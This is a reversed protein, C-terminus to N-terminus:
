RVKPNQPAFNGILDVVRHALGGGQDYWGLTKVMNDGVIMTALSTEAPVVMRDLWPEVKASYDASAGLTATM